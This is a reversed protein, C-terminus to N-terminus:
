HQDGVAGEHVRGRAVIDHCEGKPNFLVVVVDVVRSESGVRGRTGANESELGINRQEISGDNKIRTAINEIVTFNARGNSGEGGESIIGPPRVKPM